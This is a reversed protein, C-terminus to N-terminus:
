PDHQFSFFEYGQDERCPPASESRVVRLRGLALLGFAANKRECKAIKTRARKTKWEKEPASCEDDLRM